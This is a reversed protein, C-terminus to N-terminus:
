APEVVKPKIYNLLFFSSVYIAMLSFIDNFIALHCGISKELFHEWEQLQMMDELLDQFGKELVFKGHRILKGLSHHRAM